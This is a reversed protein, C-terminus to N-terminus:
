GSRHVDHHEHQGGRRTRSCVPTGTRGIRQPGRSQGCLLAAGALLGWLLFWPDWLYAHWELARRDAGRGPHLVGAQILLGPITLVLGYSTLVVAEAWALLRISRQWASAPPRGLALLPLVAAAIKVVVVTWLGDASRGRGPPGRQRIPRRRYRAPWNRWRGLLRQGRRVRARGRRRPCRRGM